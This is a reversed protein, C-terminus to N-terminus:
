NVLCWGLRGLLRWYIILTLAMLPGTVAAAYFPERQYGLILSGPWIMALVGSALYFRMWAWARNVLSKLIFPSFPLFPTHAEIVSLLCIPLLVFLTLGAAGWFLSQDGLAETLQGAGFALAVATLIAPLLWVLDSVWERWDSEPWDTVRDNGAATETLIAKGCAAAYGFTWISLWGTPFGLAYGARGYWGGIGGVDARAFCWHMAVFLVSVIACGGSLIIWRFIAEPYWPFSFTGELFPFKPVHVDGSFREEAMADFVNPQSPEPEVEPTPEEIERTGRAPVNVSEECNLCETQYAKSRVPSRFRTGCAPCTVLTTPRRKATPKPRRGPERSSRPSDAM